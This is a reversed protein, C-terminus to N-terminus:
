LIRYSDPVTSDITPREGNVISNYLRFLDFGEFARKAMMIEYVIIGFAYVDGSKTYNQNKIIEPSLYSPTGKVATKSQFTTTTNNSIRKSLGFDSIKPFLRDDTLINEPKLDRHLINHKHLYSMGSAIGFITILKKTSDWGPISMGRAECEIINSLPGNTSLESIIVPKPENKFNTPSFGLFHIISPHNMSANINVERFLNFITEQTNEDISTFSIKAAYKNRTSKEIAEFVEGFSGEGLKTGKEFQSLDLTRDSKIM